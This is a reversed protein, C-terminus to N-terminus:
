HKTAIFYLLRWNWTIKGEETQNIVLYKKIEKYIQNKELNMLNFFHYVFDELENKSTFNWTYTTNEIKTRFGSDRFLTLDKYDFFLGNHGNPNYKNVFGNLFFDQLSHKMVDGLIFKGTSKLVRHIEKYVIKREEIPLHHFNAIVIVKDFTNDDYPMEKIDIHDINALSAFEENQDVEVLEIDELDIYKKINVGAAAIHLIKDGKVPNLISVATKNENVLVNEYKSTAYMYGKIRELFQEDYSIM